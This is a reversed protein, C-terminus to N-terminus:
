IIDPVLSRKWMSRPLIYIDPPYAVPVMYGNGANEKKEMAEMVMRTILEIQNTEVAVGM